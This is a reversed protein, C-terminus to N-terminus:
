ASAPISYLLIAFYHCVGAALVFVHWIAHHYVLRKWLYFVTGLSYLIGGAAILLLGPIELVSILPKAAFLAMWGMGLYLLTSLIRFRGTFFIKFVIGALAIGWVIVFLWIGWSNEMSVLAFPTYSGAIMLYIGIHDAVRLKKKLEPEHFSHYLTSATFLFLVAFGYVLVAIMFRSNQLDNAKVLLWIFGLLSLPIGIGHTLANALEQQRYVEQLKNSPMENNRM